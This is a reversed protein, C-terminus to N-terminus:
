ARVFVAGTADAHVTRWGPQREMRERLEPTHEDTVVADVDWRDLVAPWGDIGDVVAAYDDWVDDSFLEIRSDVFV